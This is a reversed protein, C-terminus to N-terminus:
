GNWCNKTAKKVAPAILDQEGLSTIDVAYDTNEKVWALVLLNDHALAVGCKDKLADFTETNQEYKQLKIEPHQQTFLYRSDHM